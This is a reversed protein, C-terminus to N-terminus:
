LRDFVEVHRPGDALPALAERAASEIAQQLAADIGGPHLYIEMLTRPGGAPEGARRHLTADLGPHAAVLRAQLARAADEAGPAHTKWYVYAARAQAANV